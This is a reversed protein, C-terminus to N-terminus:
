GSDTSVADEFLWVQIGEAEVRRMRQDNTVFWGAGHDLATALHFADPTRLGYLARLRAASAAVRTDVPVCALNSYTRVLHTLEQARFANGKGFYPVLVESLVLTSAVGQLSGASIRRFLGASAEFYRANREFFYLFAMADLGVVAGHPPSPTMRRPTDIPPRRAGRFIGGVGASIAGSGGLRGGM